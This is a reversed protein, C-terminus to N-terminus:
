AAHAIEGFRRPEQLKRGRYRSVTAETIEPRVHEHGFAGAFDAEVGDDGNPIHSSELDDHLFGSSLEGIERTFGTKIPSASYGAIAQDM